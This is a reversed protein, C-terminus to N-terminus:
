TPPTWLILVPTYLMPSPGSHSLQPNLFSTVRPTTTRTTTRFPRRHSQLTAKPYLSRTRLFLAQLFTPSYSKGQFSPGCLVMRLLIDAMMGFKNPNIIICRGNRFHTRSTYSSKPTHRLHFM